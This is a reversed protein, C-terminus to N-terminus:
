AGAAAVAAVPPTAGEVAIAYTAADASKEIM